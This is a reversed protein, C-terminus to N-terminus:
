KVGEEEGGEAVGVLLGGDGWVASHLDSAAGGCILVGMGGAIARKCVLVWTGVAQALLGTVFPAM